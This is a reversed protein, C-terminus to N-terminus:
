GEDADPESVARKREQRGDEDKDDHIFDVSALIVDAADALDNKIANGAAISDRRRVAKLLEAHHLKANGRGGGTFVANLFPGVQMWLSEVIPLMVDSNAAQYLGFHFHYNAALYQKAEGPGVSAQMVRNVRELEAVQDRSILQAGRRALMGELSLRVQLIEQFRRRTMLPVYVVRDPAMVLSREAVLRKLADRVPILSTRFRDALARMPFRQGPVLDGMVLAQRLTLYIEDHLSGSALDTRDAPIDGLIEAWDTPKDHVDTM